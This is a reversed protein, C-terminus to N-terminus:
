VSNITPQMIHNILNVNFHTPNPGRFADTLTSVEQTDWFMMEQGGRGRVHCTVEDACRTRDDLISGRPFLLAPLHSGSMPHTDISEIPSVLTETNTQIPSGPSMRQLLSLPAADTIHEILQRNTINSVATPFMKTVSDSSPLSM